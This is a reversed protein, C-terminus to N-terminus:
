HPKPTRNFKLSATNENRSPKPTQVHGKHPRQLFFSLTKKTPGTKFTLLYRNQLKLELAPMTTAHKMNTNM